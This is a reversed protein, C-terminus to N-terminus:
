GRSTIHPSVDKFHVSLLDEDADEATPGKGVLVLQEIVFLLPVPIGFALDTSVLNFPLVHLLM